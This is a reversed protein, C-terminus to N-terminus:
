LKRFVVVFRDTKGVMPGKYTLADRADDPRRLLDSKAVVKFGHSEFDKIAYAEEIRHLPTAAASGTGEKASHDVLLLRGGPKLARALQTLV